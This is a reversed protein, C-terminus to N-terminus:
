RLPAATNQFAAVKWGDKGKTMVMTIIAGQKLDDTPGDRRGTVHVVAVDPRLFRIQKTNLTIATDKFITKFIADHQKEIEARGKVYSGNIVVYDADEAFVQAFRAGSKANWGQVMENVNNRIAAEDAEAGNQALVPCILGFLLLLAAGACRKLIALSTNM